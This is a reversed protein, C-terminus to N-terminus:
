NYIILPKEWWALTGTAEMRMAAWTWSLEVELKLPWRKHELAITMREQKFCKVM